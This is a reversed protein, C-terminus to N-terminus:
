KVTVNVHTLADHDAIITMNPHERLISAPFSPDVKGGLLQKLARSKREGSVLLLIEKSQMISAIGMTIAQTPVEDSNTFFRSNAKRTAETLTVVHTRTDFATGPENFGIHGNSGLGLLQLDIGGSAEIKKEYEECEQQLDQVVGSPINTQKKPIDIHDFLKDNMYYHYSNLDNAKMGVYEDLNFTTVHKYTTNNENYDKILFKYTEIPTGGTALGLTMKDTNKVKDILTSAAIQSMNSYNGATVLKMVM